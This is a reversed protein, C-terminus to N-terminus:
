VARALDLFGDDRDEVARRLVIREVPEHDPNRQRRALGIPQAGEVAVEALGADTERDVGHDIRQRARRLDGAREHRQECGAVIGSELAVAGGLRRLVVLRDAAAESLHRRDVVVAQEAEVVRRDARDQPGVDEGGGRALRQRELDIGREDGVQGLRHRPALDGDIRPPDLANVQAGPRDRAAPQAPGVPAVVEAGLNEAQHLRLPDLVRDDDWGPGLAAEIGLLKGVGRAVAVPPRGLALRAVLDEDARQQRDGVVDDFALDHM